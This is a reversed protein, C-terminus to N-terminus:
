ARPRVSQNPGGLPGLPSHCPKITPRLQAASISDIRRVRLARLCIRTPSAYRQITPFASGGYSGPKGAFADEHATCPKLGGEGYSGPKGAFADEHATCPKLGGERALRAGVPSPTKMSPALSSAAKVTPALSAPSLTKIPPALSSAAKVTPALSAPSLTKIPPALSSAAKAPM